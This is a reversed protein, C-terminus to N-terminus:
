LLSKVARHVPSAIKPGSTDSMGFATSSSSHSRLCVGPSIWYACIASSRIRQASLTAMAALALLLDRYLMDVDMRTPLRHDAHDPQMDVGLRPAPPQSVPHSAAEPAMAHGGLCGAAVLDVDPADAPLSAITGDLSFLWLSDGKKGGGFMTGASLVVVYQRGHHMFTSASAAVGADTQFQWLRNGNASDLATFRGDARIAVPVSSRFRAELQASWIITEKSLVGPIWVRPYPKQMPVARPTACRSPRASASHDSPNWDRNPRSSHSFGYTSM